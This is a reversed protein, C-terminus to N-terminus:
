SGGPFYHEIVVAQDPWNLCQVTMANELMELTKM